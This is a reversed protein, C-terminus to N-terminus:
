MVPGNLQDLFSQLTETGNPWIVFNDDVNHSWCLPKHPAQTLASERFDSIFFNAIVPSLPSGVAVGDTQEYFQGGGCFYASTLVPRFLVFIDEISHQSLHNLPEM